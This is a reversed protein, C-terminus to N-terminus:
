SRLGVRLDLLSSDKIPCNDFLVHCQNAFSLSSSTVYLPSPPTASRQPSGSVFSTSSSTSKSAGSMLASFKKKFFRQYQDDGHCSDHASSVDTPADSGIPGNSNVVHDATSNNGELNDSMGIARSYKRVPEGDKDLREPSHQHRTNIVSSINTEQRDLIIGRSSSNSHQSSAHTVAIGGEEHVPSLSQWTNHWLDGVSTANTSSGRAGIDGEAPMMKEGVIRMVKGADQLQQQKAPCTAFVHKRLYSKRRFQKGCASCGYLGSSSPLLTVDSDSDCCGEELGQGISGSTSTVASQGIVKASNKPKHWRRHSALNAPCNFCKDCDPCRHEVTRIGACRHRALEFPDPFLLSCLRCVYDGLRNDIRALEARAEPTAEVRNYRSDIDGSEGGGGGGGGGEHAQQRTVNATGASFEL